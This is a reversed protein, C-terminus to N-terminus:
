RPPTNSMLPEACPSIITVSLRSVQNGTERKAKRLQRENKHILLSFNYTNPLTRITNKLSVRMYFLSAGFCKRFKFHSIKCIQCNLKIIPLEVSKCPIFLAATEPYLDIQLSM